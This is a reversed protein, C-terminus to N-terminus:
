RRRRCRRAPPSSSSSAHTNPCTPSSASPRLATRASWDMKALWELVDQPLKAAADVFRSVDAESAEALEFLERVLDEPLAPNQLMWNADELTDERIIRKLVSAPTAPNGMIAHRVTSRPEGEVSMLRTITDHDDLGGCAHFLLSNLYSHIVEDYGMGTLSARISDDTEGEARVWFISMWMGFRVGMAKLGRAMEDRAATWSGYLALEGSFDYDPLVYRSPDYDETPGSNGDFGLENMSIGISTM